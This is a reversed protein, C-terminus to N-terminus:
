IELIRSEESDDGAPKELYQTTKYENVTNLKYLIDSMTEMAEISSQVLEKLADDVGDIKRHIIGLNGLLVTAPQGLHHCAAGLSELMVRRQEAKREAEVVRNRDSVDVFSFIMGVPDGDTNVNSAVSVQVSFESGDQRRALAEFVLTSQDTIVQQLLHNVAAPDSVLMDISQGMLQDILEYGWMRALAPNVYEFKADLNAVAIGDGANQIANYTTRLMEERQLRVTIDRLFFCLRVEGLMLRNVSIEAPFYEGDGRLCSAQILTFRDNELNEMLTDLLSTSAGSVIDLVSMACLQERDYMLKEEARVNVDVIRGAIDTILASDYVSQLLAQYHSDETASSPPRTTKIRRKVPSTIIVKKKDGGAPEAPVDPILDIRMTKSLKEKLCRGM